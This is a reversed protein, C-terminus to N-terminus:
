PQLHRLVDVAEERNRLPIKFFLKKGSQQLRAQPISNLAGVMPQFAKEYFRMNSEPPLECTLTLGKLIVRVFGTPLAAIRLRMVFILNQVEKPFNGYRDRMESTLLNLQDESKTQYLRKYFEYRETDRAIYSGPLLADADLDIAIDENIFEEEHVADEKDKFLEHFEEIKLERIAEDLIKQYLEFGMEMIFGSQEGGLLNGAGRIELDRMALQFGSGLETHEELAQLRRLATRSIIHVPPIILYCYAQTNSRGVRGRLQYLEALGFHDARNIFMTNANPIDLGSEIIKTAILVDFKRELFGEMIDELHETPMQGHAIATKITPVIQHLKAAIYDLDAIRDSVFFMQGGRRMELEIADRLMDDDWQAIATDIPLRNRPPTEIVSLDRAGMLSFNLTRPIPTATLTLTDVEVRMQRLKEKAGVGFRQEEDIVLLGLDKFLVDKSLIRHTGILIDVKGESLKELVEKQEAKTRFRSLVEVTVPYRSLRDKFNVFHQQALITTPVLVAAQRNAQVAKFAARIAVETKGFGVDGCVLRDMPTPEEMDEKVEATARAQDPTDEYMFAAEFEKQWMTDEPYAFGKQAKRQAYLKILDRAIDKLRKKTKAKKREWEATGLKSLKPIQGEEASFKQLKNIYNLHVHLTDGDAFILKVSEQKSEGITITELGDFKCVGKNEHVVYDGRRLQSLERLTIGKSKKGRSQQVRRREFLQHEAFCVIKEDPLVFGQSVTEDIWTINKLVDGIKFDVENGDEDLPMNELANVVLEKFRKIHIGGEACLFVKTSAECLKLLEGAFNQISAGFKPQPTTKLVVDAAGIGNFHLHQYNDFEKLLEHVELDHLRQAVAEPSDLVFLTDKPFYSFINTEPTKEDSHFMHAIFEVALHERISRQSLPDFERISDVDDGWFEIRLPNAFGIPYIDVIGGRVAMDGTFAVFDKREFGQLALNTVFEDFQLNMGKAVALHHKDVENPKPVDYLLVEPTLIAVANPERDLVALSEVVNLLRTDLQEASHRLNKDPEAFLAVNEAGIMLQLDHVLENAEDRSAAIIAFRRPEIQWLAGLTASRSSGSLTKASTKLAKQSIREHLSKVFPFKAFAKLLPQFPSTQNNV